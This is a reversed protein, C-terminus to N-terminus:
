QQLSEAKRVKEELSGKNKGERRKEERRQTVGLLNGLIILRHKRVMMVCRMKRSM